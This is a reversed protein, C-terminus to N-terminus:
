VVSLLRSTLSFTRRSGALRQLVEFPSKRPRSKAKLMSEASLLQEHHKVESTLMETIFGWTELRDNAGGSEIAARQQSMLGSLLMEFKRMAHALDTNRDAYFHRIKLGFIETIHRVCWADAAHPRHREAHTNTMFYDLKRQKKLTQIQTVTREALIIGIEVEFCQGKKVQVKLDQYLKHIMVEFRLFDLSMQVQQCRTPSKYRMAKDFAGLLDQILQEDREGVSTFNYQQCLKLGLQTTCPNNRYPRVAYHEVNKSKNLLM